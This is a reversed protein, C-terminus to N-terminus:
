VITTGTMTSLDINFLCIQNNFADFKIYDFYFNKEDFHESLVSMIDEASVSNLDYEKDAEMISFIKEDLDVGKVEAYIHQYVNYDGWSEGLNDDHIDHVIDSFKEGCAVSQQRGGIKQYLTIWEIKERPAEM